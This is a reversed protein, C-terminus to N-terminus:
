LNHKPKFYKAFKRKWKQSFDFLRFRKQSTKTILITGDTPENWSDHIPKVAPPIVEAITEIHNNALLNRLVHRNKRRCYRNKARYYETNSGCCIGCKIFKRYTKSM